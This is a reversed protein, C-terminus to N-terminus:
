ADLTTTRAKKSHQFGVVVPPRLACNSAKRVHGDTKGIGHVERTARFTRRIKPCEGSRLRDLADAPLTEVIWDKEGVHVTESRPFCNRAPSLKAANPSSLSPGKYTGTNLCPPWVVHPLTLNAFRGMAEEPTIPYGWKSDTTHRSLVCGSSDQTSETLTFQTGAM